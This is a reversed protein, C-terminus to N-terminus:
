ALAVQSGDEGSVERIVVAGPGVEGESLIRRLPPRDLRRLQALNDGDTFDTTQVM